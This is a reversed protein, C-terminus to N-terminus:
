TEEGVEGEGESVSGGRGRERGRERRRKQRARVRMRTVTAATTWGARRLRVTIRAYERSPPCGSSGWDSGCSRDHNPGCSRKNRCSSLSGISKLSGGGYTHHQPQSPAPSMSPGSTSGTHSASLFEVFSGLVTHCSRPKLEYCYTVAELSRSLALTPTPPAQNKITLRSVLKEIRM